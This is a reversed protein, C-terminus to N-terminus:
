TRKTRPGIDYDDGSVALLLVGDLAEIFAGEMIQLFRYGVLVENFAAVKCTLSDRFSQQRKVM